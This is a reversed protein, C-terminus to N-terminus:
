IAPMGKGILLQARERGTMKHTTGPAARGTCKHVALIADCPVRLRKRPNDMEFELLRRVESGPHETYPFTVGEPIATVLRKVRGQHGSEAIFQRRFFFGVIDGPVPPITKDFLLMTGDPIIPEM